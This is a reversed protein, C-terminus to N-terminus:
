AAKRVKRKKAFEGGEVSEVNIDRERHALM